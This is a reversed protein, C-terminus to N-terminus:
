SLVRLCSSCVASSALHTHWTELCDCYCCASPIRKGCQQHSHDICAEATSHLYRNLTNRFVRICRHSTSDLHGNYQRGRMSLSTSQDQHHGLQRTHSWSGTDPHFKCPGRRRLRLNQPSGPDTRHNSSHSGGNGVDNSMRRLGYFTHRARCCQRRM